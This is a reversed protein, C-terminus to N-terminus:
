DVEFAYSSLHYDTAAHRYLLLQPWHGLMVCYRWDLNFQVGAASRWLLSGRNQQIGILDQLFDATLASQIGGAGPFECVAATVVPGDTDSVVAQFPLCDLLLMRNPRRLSVFRMCLVNPALPGTDVTDSFQAAPVASHSIVRFAYMACTTLVHAFLVERRGSAAPTM